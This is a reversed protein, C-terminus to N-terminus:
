ARELVFMEYGFQGRGAQNVAIERRLDDLVRSGALDPELAELRTALPRYYTDMAERGMDFHGLVRYGARKAQAVRTSPTAMVPYEAAWFSRVEDDPKGTRWVMDSFVLVGGPRLLARWDVLAKEVGLVYASGESWIVDWPHEPAPIAAMDVCQVEIREAFGGVAIRSRLKNLAVEATDTATIRARTAEALTMTAMGPGCGIEFITEPAFPVLTLARRTAEATGPGWWDLGAFVEMFVAMYADHANMDKSVLAVLGAEASSFGQSMLWARHLDPAVREVEEHWDKLSSQGLLAALLDRSKRKEAIEREVTELRQGLMERDLKGDLCAQCEQLSLGGAQLQQMLRLRQRDADTYVRYGNAQRKGKLLGLKEYYLLTARSLGVSEALESIHYM